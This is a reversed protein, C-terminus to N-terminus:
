VMEAKILRGVDVVRVGDDTVIKLRGDHMPVGELVADGYEHFMTLRVRSGTQLADSLTYQMQELEDESLVPPIRESRACQWSEMIRRHEPLVLRMAEFINGENINM